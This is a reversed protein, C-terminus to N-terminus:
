IRNIDDILQSIDVHTYLDTVDSTAHGLILKRHLLPINAKELLTAATHRTDHFYHDMDMSKMYEILMDNAHSYSLKKGEFMILYEGSVDLLPVIKEAIPIQRNKGADTKLGGVMYRKDLFVSNTKLTLLENVRMGTYILILLLRAMFDCKNAWLVEIEDKTFIKHPRANENSSHLILLASLDDKVINHRLATKYMFRLVIKINKMTSHSKSSQKLAINEIDDVTLNEFIMNHLPKLNKYAAQYCQMTSKSLPEPKRSLEQMWMDYIESFRHKKEKDKQKVVEVPAQNYKELFQLAESSKEFYALYEYKNVARGDVEEMGKYIRVAYPRRRKGSLKIVSGSKNPRRM